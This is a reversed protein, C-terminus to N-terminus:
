LYSFLLWWFLTGFIGLNSFFILVISGFVSSINGTGSKSGVNFLNIVIITSILSSTITLILIILLRVITQM